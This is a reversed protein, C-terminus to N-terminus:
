PMNFMLIADSGADDAQLTNEAVPGNICCTAQRHAPQTKSSNGGIFLGAVLCYVSLTITIIKMLRNHM